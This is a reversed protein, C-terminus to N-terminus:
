ANSRETPGTRTCIGSLVPSVAHEPSPRGLGVLLAAVAMASNRRLAAIGYTAFAEALGETIAREPAQPVSARKWHRITGTRPDGIVFDTFTGGVDVGFHIDAVASRQEL